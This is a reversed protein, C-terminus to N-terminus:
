YSKKTEYTKKYYKEGVTLNNSEALKFLEDNTMKDIKSEYVEFKEKEPYHSDIIEQL